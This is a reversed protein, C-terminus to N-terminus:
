RAKIDLLGATIFVKNESPSGISVRLYDPLGYSKLPRIIVGRTLLAEFVNQASYGKDPPLKFMLFNAQSPYVM